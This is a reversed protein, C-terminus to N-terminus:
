ENSEEEEIAKIIRIVQKIDKPSLKRTQKFLLKLDERQKLENWFELLEPDDEVAETIEDSPNRIDTKGLLYDVSVGFIDSLKQLTETDPDRQGIEYMGITGRSVGLKDALEKQTLGAEKRLTALRKAFNM